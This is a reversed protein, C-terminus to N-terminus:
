VCYCSPSTLQRILVLRYQALVVVLVVPPPWHMAILSVHISIVIYLDCVTIVHFVCNHPFILFFTLINDSFMQFCDSFVHCCKCLCSTGQISSTRFYIANTTESCNLWFHPFALWRIAWWQCLSLHSPLTYKKAGCSVPGFNSILRDTESPLSKGLWKLYCHWSFPQYNTVHSFHGEQHPSFNGGSGLEKRFVM